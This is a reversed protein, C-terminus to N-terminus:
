ICLYLYTFQFEQFSESEHSIRDVKKFICQNQQAM